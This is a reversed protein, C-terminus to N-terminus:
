RVTVELGGKVKEVSEVSEIKVFLWEALEDSDMGEMAKEPILHIGPKLVSLILEDNDMVWKALPSDKEKGNGNKYRASVREEAKRELYKRHRKQSPTESWPIAKEGEFLTMEKQGRAAYYELAKEYETKLNEPKPSNSYRNAYTWNACEIAARVAATLGLLVDFM